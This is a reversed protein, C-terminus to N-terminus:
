MEDTPVNDDDDDDDAQFMSPCNWPLDCGTMCVATCCPLLGSWMAIPLPSAVCPNDTEDQPPNNGKKRKKNKAPAAATAKPKEEDEDEGEDEEDSLRNMPNSLENFLPNENAGAQAAADDSTKNQIFMFAGGGILGVCCLLVLIGVSIGTSSGEPPPPPTAASPTTPTPGPTPAPTSGDLTVGPPLYSNLGESMAAPDALTATVVDASASDTTVVSYEITIEYIPEGASIDALSISALGPGAEPSHVAEVFSALFNDGELNESVDVNTTVSFEVEVVSAQLQRRPAAVAAALRRRSISRVTIVCDSIALTGCAAHQLGYTLARKKDSGVVYEAATGPLRAISSVIVEYSTVKVVAAPTDPPVVSGGTTLAAAREALYTPSAAQQSTIASVVGAAFDDPSVYGPITATGHVVLAAKACIGVNDTDVWGTDCICENGTRPSSVDQCFASADGNDNCPNGDGGAASVVNCGDVEDCDISGAQDQVKGPACMSCTTRGVDHQYRGAPCDVCATAADSDGDHKGADCGHCVSAGTDAYEGAGCAVCALTPDSSYTGTLCADCTSAGAQPQSTGLFCPACPTTSSSDTDASGVACDTCEIRGAAQGLVMQESAYTGASCAECPTTSDTDVDAFGAACNTCATTAAAAFKGSPCQTADCPTAPDSDSDPHGVGCDECSTHTASAYRGATCAICSSTSGGAADVEYKGAPCNSCQTSGAAAFTGVSCVACQTAANSDLDAQGEACDFCATAGAASYAGASCAVCVDAADYSMTGGLCFQCGTAADAAGRYKGAACDSCQAERPADQFQGPTCATCDGARALAFTGPACASCPHAPHHSSTGPQCDECTQAFVAHEGVACLTCNPSGTVSVTGPSCFLCEHMGTVDQYRGADCATCTAEGGAGQFRGQECDTCTAASAGASKGPVCMECLNTVDNLSRGVECAVCMDNMPRSGAGCAACTIADTTTQGTACATCLDAGDAAVEGAACDDCLAEGNAHQHQGASCATCSTASGISVQGVMCAACATDPSPSFKGSVCGVCAVGGVAREGAVCLTCVSSTELAVQGTACDTCLTVLSTDTSGTSFRGAACNKCHDEASEDQFTGVGCLSCTIADSSFRGPACSDCTTGANSDLDVKGAECVTCGGAANGAYTGAPCDACATVGDTFQGWTCTTCSAEGTTATYQGVACDTCPTSPDLDTDAKGVACPACGAGDNDDDYTGYRCILVAPAQICATAADTDDDYYGAVCDYCQDSGEPAYQGPNADDVFTTCATCSPSGVIASYTGPSCHACVDAGAVSTQGAPCDNCSQHDVASITGTTCAQCLTTSVSFTGPGCAMCPTSASNPNDADTDARGSACDDCTTTGAAAYTGATCPTCASMGDDGSVQGAACADCGVAAPAASVQGAMCDTCATTPAHDADATGAACDTCTGGDGNVDFSGMPCVVAGQVQVCPTAANSDDDSYGAVCDYCQGSAVPAYQGPNADDVFTTCATCAALGDATSAQGAACNVCNVSGDTASIQGAVCATCTTTPSSDHDTQGAACDTCATAQVASFTGATCDVCPTSSLSDADAEGAACDTCVTSGAAAYQGAICDVCASQAATDVAKGPECNTCSTAGATRAYSGADCPTCETASSQDADATGTACPTCAGAADEFNGPLCVNAVQVACITSADADDDYYGTACDTCQTSGQSSYQGSACPMCVSYTTGPAQMAYTGTACLACSDAGVSSSQGAPCDTCSARDATAVSGPSCPQCVTTTASFTGAGCSACATDSSGDTDAKGPECDTCSAGIQAYTGAPCSACSVQAAQGNTSKGPACATCLVQATTDSFFGTLCDSCATSSDQDGDIQGAPCSNCVLAAAAAYTGVACYQCATSADSDHDIYGAACPTCDSSGAVAYAGTSCATCAALGDTASIQGAVCNACAVSGATDTVQGALCDVCPTSADQDADVQGAACIDCVLGPHIVSLHQGSSYTGAACAECATSPLRDGDFKGAVCDACTTSGEAAYQGTVCANCASQGTQNNATGAACNSCMISGTASFQGAVCDTCVTSADGDDDFQGIPCDICALEGAVSFTGQNCISCATAPDIDHDYTGAQCVQCTTSATRAYSGANCATCDAAPDSGAQGAACEMCVIQATILAHQGAACAACPTSGDQDLDAFGAACDVCGLIGQSESGIGCAIVMPPPPPPSPPVVVVNACLHGAPHDRCALDGNAVIGDCAATLLSLEAASMAALADNFANPAGGVYGNSAWDDCTAATTAGGIRNCQLPLISQSSVDWLSDCTSGTFDNAITTCAADDPGLDQCLLKLTSQPGGLTACAELVTAQPIQSCAAVAAATPGGQETCFQLFTTGNALYPALDAVAQQGWGLNHGDTQAWGECDIARDGGGPLVLMPCVSPASNSLAACDGEAIPTFGPFPITGVVRAAVQVCTTYDYGFGDCALRSTEAVGVAACSAGVAATDSLVSECLAQVSQDPGGRAQCFALGVRYDAIEECTDTRLDPVMSCLHGIAHGECAADTHQAVSGCAAQLLALESSAMSALAQNFSTGNVTSAIHATPGWQDCTPDTTGQSLLQCLQPWSAVLLNCDMPCLDNPCGMGPVPVEAALGAQVGICTADDFGIDLCIVRVATTPSAFAMCAQMATAAPVASWIALTAAQPDGQMYCYDQFSVAGALNPALDAVAQQGWGLDHGDTQAWEECDAARSGGNAASDVAALMPCITAGGMSFAACDAAAIPTYGAIPITGTILAAVQACEAYGMGWGDCALRAAEAVGVTACSAAVVATDSLSAECLAQVAQDPGGRAQCFALGVRYDAIEECTDTRLDPVMSCLHGISHGECAADTNLSVAACGAQLLSLEASEMNLLAANFSAADATGGVHATPGWSDCTPDTTGQSLLQCLQPWSAVLLNCDMPCLDNPCGMGPVPIEAPLGLQVGICTADDFGINLCIVRMAVPPGGLAVCSQMATAAPVASWIALTAAQPDGAATCYDQFSVANGLDPALDAVAQQGWGLNHGDTQAWEQCSTGTESDAIAPCLQSAGATFSACDAGAFTNAYAAAVNACISYSYGFGDCVLRATEGIGVTTCIAETVSPDATASMCLALVSNHPSGQSQCFALGVNYDAIDECTDTRSEPVMSCLHGIGHGACAGDTHLAVALCAEQLLGLEDAQMARLAAGLSLGDDAVTGGIHATPGWQTCPGNTTGAALAQCLDPWAAVMIDCTTITPPLSAQVGACTAETFGIDLCVVRVTVGPSGLYQCSALATDAPVASCIANTALQPGGALECYQVFTVGGALTPALNAVAEQGWGLNHGDTQAWGGCDAARSGGNAASDVAVLMPCVTDVSNVFTACDGEAIPVFWPQGIHADPLGQATATNADILLPITGVVLAAVQVCTTYDYGFGDCALRSTEAVGVAACSAGVAATDSLVSECLAQVSQDPGGRAQCFALGVRYDAIEECTDTRLDPVMSCLHGLEHGQCLDALQQNIAACQEQLLVLEDSQLANIGANFATMDFTGGIHATPGWENCSQSPDTGNAIALCLDGQMMVLVDCSPMAAAGASISACTADDFGIELCVVRVAVTPGGLAVCAGRLDDAPVSNCISLSAPQPGGALQCYDTFTVGGAAAPALNGIAHQGRGLNRGESCRM